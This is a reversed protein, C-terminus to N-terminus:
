LGAAVAMGYIHEWPMGMDNLSTARVGWANYFRNSFEWGAAGLADGHDGLNVAGLVCVQTPASCCDGTPYYDGRYQKGGVMEYGKLMAESFKM